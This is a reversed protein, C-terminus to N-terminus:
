ADAAAKRRRQRPAIGRMRDILPRLVVAATVALGAGLVYWAPREGILVINAQLIRAPDIGSFAAYGAAEIVMTSAAMAITLGALVYWPPTKGKSVSRYLMLWGFFGALMTPEDVNVKSQMVQHVIALIAAVYLSRHLARWRRGGLRRLMADTSTAALALMILVTVMGIALYIRLVIETAIVRLDFVKDACFLAFHFVVYGFSAIGIMRRLTMLDPWRLAQRFPTVALSLLLLRIAWRGTEHIAEDLPRPGLTGRAYAIAVLLGPLCLLVLALTKFVSFDGARDRWPMRSM